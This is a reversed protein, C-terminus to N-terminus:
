RYVSQISLSDPHQWPQASELIGDLHEQMLKKLIADVNHGLRIRMLTTNQKVAALIAEAGKKRIGNGQLNLDRLYTNSALQETIALAGVDGLKNHQAGLAKSSLSYGMDLVGLTSHQLISNILDAAADSDIGNSALSLVKLPMQQNKAQVEKFLKALELAGKNGLQNVALYLGQLGGQQILVKLAPLADGSFSNGSLYLWKVSGAGKQQNAVLAEVIANLGETGIQTNVLDLTRLHHNKHLLQALHKAGEVGIPNRKLWLAQVNTNELAEGLAAVGQEGIRNCGLYVTEIQSKNRVFESVHKLGEDGIGNTGLLLSNVFTNNQLAKTVEECGAIGLGQKCLDLRGDARLSGRKFYVDQNSQNNQQLYQLLPNLEAMNYPPKLTVKDVPCVLLEPEMNGIVLPM